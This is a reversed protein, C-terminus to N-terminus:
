DTSREHGGDRQVPVHRLPSSPKTHAPEHETRRRLDVGLGILAVRVGDRQGKATVYHGKSTISAPTVALRGTWWHWGEPSQPRVHIVLSDSGTVQLLEVDPQRQLQRALHDAPSDGAAAPEAPAPTPRTRLRTGAPDILDAVELAASRRRRNSRQQALAMSPHVPFAKHAHDRQREALQHTLQADHAAILRAADDDSLPRGSTLAALLGSFDSM